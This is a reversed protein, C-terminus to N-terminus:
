DGIFISIAVAGDNGNIAIECSSGEATNFMLYVIATTPFYLYKVPGACDHLIQGCALDVPELHGQWLHLEDSGLMALIQNQEANFPNIKGGFQRRRAHSSIISTVTHELEHHVRM